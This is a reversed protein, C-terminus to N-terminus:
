WGFGGWMGGLGMWGGAGNRMRTTTVSLGHHTYFSRVQARQHTRMARLATKAASSKLANHYKQSWARAAVTQKGRMALWQGFGNSHSMMWSAGHGTGWMHSADWDHHGMMGSAGAIPVLLAAALM